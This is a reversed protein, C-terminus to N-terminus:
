PLNLTSDYKSSDRVLIEIYCFPGTHTTVDYSFHTHINLYFTKLANKPLMYSTTSLASRKLRKTRIKSKPLPRIEKGKRRQKDIFQKVGISNNINEMEM